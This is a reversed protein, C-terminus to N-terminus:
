FGVRRAEARARAKDFAEPNSDCWQQFESALCENIREVHAPTHLAHAVLRKPELLEDGYTRIQGAGERVASDVMRTAVLEPTEAVEDGIGVRNAAAHAEQRAAAYAAIGGGLETLGVVVSAYIDRLEDVSAALPVILQTRVQQRAAELREAEERDVRRRDAEIHLREIEAADRAKSLAAASVDTAGDRIREELDVLLESATPSTQTM